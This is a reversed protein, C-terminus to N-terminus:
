FTTGGSHLIVAATDKTGHVTEITENKGDNIFDKLYVYDPKDIKKVNRGQTLSYGINLFLPMSDKPSIVIVKQVDTDQIIHDIKELCIDSVVLLKTHNNILYAKIEEEASLPHIMNAIAGIKNIAYFAYLAEPTNPSCVTVIDKSKIGYFKLSKGFDDINKLLNSFSIKKGFYELAPLKPYQLAAKEMQEYITDDNIEIDKVNYYKLWPAKPKKLRKIKNIIEM